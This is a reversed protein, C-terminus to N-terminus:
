PKSIAPGTASASSGLLNEDFKFRLRVYLGRQTYAEGALDPARFGKINYGLSLWMNKFALYGVELGVATEAAGGGWMRYAQLSVDWRESLDWTSRGGLLQTVSHSNLDNSQDRGWKAAYRANMVWDRRPQVNLHTSLILGSEDRRLSPGLTSDVDKKYEIRGLANWVNTDVPRYAVGSQWTTLERQGSGVGLNIQESYLGRNLLTWNEDLKNAVAGTLLWSRSTTSSQWQVQGSAKWDAAATYDAGLTVASSDTQTVGSLPKIRQVSGTLGIGNDLRWRRRLGVAAESNRGSISDGMRYENFLQTSDTLETNIGAVTTYQSAAPNLTYPGKLSNIFNHRGYLRTTSNIAYNGGIGVEKGGSGDIAYEVLGFVDAQPVNPVPVTVKVRATTTGVEEASGVALAAPSPIVPVSTGPLAPASLAAATNASSYRVGVELKINGALSHELKLEMGTQAAGTVSNATKLAEGVMRNKEDVVYGIKAGYESLGASQMSNPNVFGANTHVGWVRAQLAKDEHRLEARQGAGSGQLDTSSRALEGTLVTKEGLRALVNVGNLSQQNIPDTDRMTSAGLTIGPAVQVRVDAGAVEHKPGGMDVSYSVRLFVPNLDADVSPVPSKLLLQGSYAEIEYDTFPTLPTDKVIVSAQNRGRTIVNVQQSNVVGNMNLRFPGSTGNARFEQVVQTASTRSAFAEATLGGEQYRGKVGNLARAYQSLQRAPNDSQTSYDGLLAYSTGNQLMVYLRGTSQADFGRASSDGYVPYFQNPQIDRFLATDSPKDSDYALTLLSSGLVKGKLFLATRAGVDGKGNSFSRSTSQIQREFVDGNQSPQLASPNLSRLNIVGEVIGAAIMPRLNPMFEISAASKITGSIVNLEAKGPQAPPLLLFRGEGGEVFVQTGPQRADLDPTQWQGLSAQLSVQTRATVPLGQADRLSITIPVATTGDAVLQPPAAIDIKALAGPVRLTVQATGRAIGFSDIARVSLTNRGAQLDVGIYEWAVVKNKELSSKKGVQTAPVVKGNVTLEFSAGLPGKVRVRTQASPLWQEDVLGVFGTEATLDPLLDELPQAAQAAESDAPPVAQAPAPAPEVGVPTYIPKPLGRANPAYPGGTDGVAGLTGAPNAAMAGPLPAVVNSGANNQLAGPLGFGGSAPLTRGDVAVAGRNAQLLTGAAQVIESPNSLAKRRAAIQERIGPTCEAIAFDAKHLEGNTLDVFRSGGDFANRNNLVALTAGAPLTINDIKAVHTRPELGYFSYKGEEDTVAYTGDELYIRVGPIGPEGADQVGDRSCDAFVKGIVYAKNSFVGGVVQVRVSSRNSRVAGSAAQATNIGNGSQSGVGIRVRYTLTPQASGALTGVAFQLSPGAGGAPDALPAGNFRASGRVYAFGAPLSDSVVTAPLPVATVNNFKIAYDVFDGIEATKKNATKEIFLGGTSGPDMPVDFHVPVGAVLFNGGYSGPTDILRGAPQLAAPLASPFTYGAPPTIVLRYTSSLVLPFEYRGSAATVIVSPAPTVGDAQLVVAPGGPSGGNGAGTVDILQVTAGAIPQNTSSNYVTGSPDVLLMTTASVAVGGCSTITATVTDNRLVELIGDGAAVLRVTADATPLHPQIRFVGTNPGTEVATFIETDGTLQSVVTVSVTGVVAPDANCVAADVQVFLPSGPTSQIAKTAYSNSTYFLISAARAPLPLVVTNSATTLPAGADNWGAYSTGSVNGAANSNVNVTFQGQFLGGQPLNAISWAVADVVAGAPVVSVYSNAASGLLHFLTQAGPNTAPQASVFTTNVPVPIRLIFRTAPVGDVTLSTPSAAMNGNNIAKATLVLDIGPTATPSAAALTVQVAAGNTLNITDTNSATAGQTQSVARLAIQAVQGPTAGAPIQGTVLLGANAGVALSVVGGAPIVSEGADVQGNGNADLVVQLNFPIFASGGAVNATILYNTVANGTNALNHNITFSSGTGILLNQSATLTLAELPLVKTSVVNSNLRVSLGTAADVFTASASASIMTGAAPAAAQAAAWFLLLLCSILLKNLLRFLM